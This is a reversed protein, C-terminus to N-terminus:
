LRTIYVSKTAIAFLFHIKTVPTLEVVAFPAPDVRITCGHLTYRSEPVSVHAEDNDIGEAANGELHHVKGDATMYMSLSRLLEQHLGSFRLQEAGIDYAAGEGTQSVQIDSEPSNIDVGVNDQLEEKVSEDELAGEMREQGANESPLLEQSVDDVKEDELLGKESTNSSDSPRHRETSASGSAADYVNRLSRKPTPSKSKALSNSSTVTDYYQYSALNVSKALGSHEVLAGQKAQARYAEAIRALTTRKVSGVLIRNQPSDVIPFDGLQQGSPGSLPTLSLLEELDNVTSKLTLYHPSDRLGHMLDKAHLRYAAPSLARPLYPLGNIAMLTDYISATFLGATSYSLLVCLLVPVMHHIQRTLEFVIVAPSITQTVGAILGAAGMVAYTGPVIEADPAIAAVTEGVLRGLAGGLTFVPTFLGCPVPLSISVITIAFKFISYLVLTLFKNPSEWVEFGVSTDALLERSNDELSKIKPGEFLSNILQRDSYRLMVLFYTVTSVLFVVTLGLGYRGKANRTLLRRFVLSKAMLRIFLVSVFGLLIGMIAYLVIQWSLAQAVFATKKFLSENQISSMAEYFIVGVVSCVFARWLNSAMYYTSTVEVSFLVGGIPAGFVATVGAAVAAALMQKRLVESGRIRSFCPLKWLLTAMACAVHVFPGERGVSLGGTMATTFGIIKAILVRLSLYQDLATGALVSKMQPIGSGEALPTIVHGAGLAFICFVFAWMIWLLYNFLDYGDGLWKYRAFQLNKIIADVAFSVVGVSLGLIMLFAWTSWLTPFMAYVRSYTSQKKLHGDFDREDSCFGCCSTSVENPSSEAEEGDDGSQRTGDPSRLPAVDTRHSSSSLPAGNKEELLSGPTELYDPSTYVDLISHHARAIIPATAKEEQRFADTAQKVVKKTQRVAEAM